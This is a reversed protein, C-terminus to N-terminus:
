TALGSKRAIVEFLINKHFVRKIKNQIGKAPYENSKSRQFPPSKSLVEVPLADFIRNIQKETFHVTHDAFPGIEFNIGISNWFGHLGSIQHYIRHHTNVSFYLIGSPKLVRVLEHIVRIPDSAHDVVNDSLVVDFSSNEFPLDEGIAAVTDTEDQWVPFLHKYEVALPDIGVAVVDDFGFVLGHAGSGVELVKDEDNSGRFEELRKRIWAARKKIQLAAMPMNGSMERAKNQQYELQRKVAREGRVRKNRDIRSETDKSHYTM